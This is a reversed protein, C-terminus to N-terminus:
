DALKDYEAQCLDYSHGVLHFRNGVIPSMGTKDCTVGPHVGVSKVAAGDGAQAAAASAAAAAAAQSAAAMAQAAAACPANAAANAALTAAVDLEAHPMLKRVGEPLQQMLGPLSKALNNFLAQMQEDADAATTASEATPPKAQSSFDATPTAEAATAADTM